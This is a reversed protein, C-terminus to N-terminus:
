KKKTGPRHLQTGFWRCDAYRPQGSKRAPPLLRAKLFAEDPVQFLEPLYDAWGLLSEYYRHHTESPRRSQLIDLIESALELRSKKYDPGPIHDPWDILSLAGFIRDKPDHCGFNGIVRLVPGLPTRRPNPGYGLSLLSRQPQLELFSDSMSFCVDLRRLVGPLHSVMMVLKDITKVVVNVGAIGWIGIWAEVLISLVLFARLPRSSTGCCVTIRGNGLYLEQLIWVRSFYPRQLFLMFAAAVRKRIRASVTLYRKVQVRIKFALFPSSGAWDGDSVGLGRDETIVLDNSIVEILADERELFIMLFDSDDGHSGVCALVHFAQEYLKGMMAVQPSKEEDNNQDICIGDVWYYASPEFKYAQQLVSECNRKVSKSKRDIFMTSLQAPSGWTYSIASYAPAAALPWITLACEVPKKHDGQLIRLLRVYSTPDPLAEHQYDASLPHEHM